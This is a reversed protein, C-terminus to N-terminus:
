AQLGPFADPAEDRWCRWPEPRPAITLIEPMPRACQAGSPLPHPDLLAM